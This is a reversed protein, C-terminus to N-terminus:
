IIIGERIGRVGAQQLHRAAEMTDPHVDKGRGTLYAIGAEMASLVACDLDEFALTRIQNLERDDGHTRGPEIYDALYIIKELRTMQPKGTTHWRIAQVIHEPMDLEQRAVYAGTIAHLLAPAKIYSTRNIIDCNELLKLQEKFSIEKTIDHLLAAKSADEVFVDWRRALKVATQECGLTHQMRDAGLRATVFARLSEPTQNL